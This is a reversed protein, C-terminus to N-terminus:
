SSVARINPMDEAHLMCEYVDHHYVCLVALMISTCQGLVWLACNSLEQTALISILLGHQTHFSCAAHILVTGQYYKSVSVLWQGGNTNRMM